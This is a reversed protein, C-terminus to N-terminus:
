PIARFRAAAKLSLDAAQIGLQRFAWNGSHGIAQFGAARFGLQGFVWNGSLGTAGVFGSGALSIILYSM